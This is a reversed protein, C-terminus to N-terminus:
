YACLIDVCTQRNEPWDDALGAMAHVGALRVAPQGDGLQAAATAFRGNLTQARQGALTKDTVNRTTRFGYLAVVVTGALSILSVGAAILSASVDSSMPSGRVM